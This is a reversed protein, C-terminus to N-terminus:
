HGSPHHASTRTWYCIEQKAGPKCRRVLQDELDYSSSSLDPMSSAQAPLSALGMLLAGLLVVISSRKGKIVAGRKWDYDKM